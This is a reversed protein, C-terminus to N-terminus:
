HDNNVSFLLIVSWPVLSLAVVDWDALSLVAIPCEHVNLLYKNFPHNILYNFYLSDSPLYM